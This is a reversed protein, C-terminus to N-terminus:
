LRFCGFAEMGMLHTNGRWSFIYRPEQLSKEEAPPGEHINLGRWCPARWQWDRFRTPHLISIIRSLWILEPTWSTGAFKFVVRSPVM